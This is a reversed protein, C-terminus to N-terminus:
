LILSLGVTQVFSVEAAGFAGVERPNGAPDLAQFIEHADGSQGTIPAGSAEYVVALWRPIVDFSAGIGLPFEVVVGERERIEYRQGRPETVVMSPFEFRGWGVGASLWARLRSGFALTPAVKAGFVFTPVAAAEVTAAASISGPAGTALAGQPIVLDHHADVFYAQIRLWETAPWALHLGWGVAPQYRVRSTALAGAFPRSVFAVDGGLELRRKWRMSARPPEEAMAPRPIERERRAQEAERRERAAREEETERREGSEDKKDPDAPAESQARAWGPALALVATVLLRRM